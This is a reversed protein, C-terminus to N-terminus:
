CTCGVLAAPDLQADNAFTSWGQEASWRFGQGGVWGGMIWVHTVEEPLTPPVTPLPAGARMLLDTVSFPATSEMGPAIVFLHREAAGSRRLKALNDPRSPDVIWESLWGPIADGTPAAWGGSRELPIEPTVYISGPFNTGGQRAGVIDLGAAASVLQDWGERRRPLRDLSAQELAQLLSPLEKVLRKYRATPRITVSWGGAITSEVWRSGRGNILKWCQILLPDAAATIELAAFTRGGAVSLDLDHANQKGASNDDHQGVIVGPLTAQVCGAVWLEEGRLGVM